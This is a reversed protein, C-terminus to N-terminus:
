PFSSTAMTTASMNPPNTIPSAIATAVPFTRHRHVGRRRRPVSSSTAQASATSSTTSVSRSSIRMGDILGGGGSPVPRRARDGGPPDRRHEGFGAELGLDDLRLGPASRDVRPQAAVAGAAIRQEEEGVEVDDRCRRFAPAVVRERGVEGVAVDVSAARDVHLVHDRHLEADHPQQRGLSAGGAEVGRAVRDRAQTAVDQERARGVLLGAARDARLPDGLM